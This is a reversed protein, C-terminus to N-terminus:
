NSSSEVELEPSYELFRKFTVGEETHYFVVYSNRIPPLQSLKVKFPKDGAVVTLLWPNPQNLLEKNEGPEVTIAKDDPTLVKLTQSQKGWLGNIVCVRQSTQSPKSAHPIVVVRLANKEKQTPHEKLYDESFLALDGILVLTNPKSELKSLPASVEAGGAANQVTIQESLESFDRLGTYAGRNFTPYLMKGKVKIQVSDVSLGNIWQLSSSSPAPSQARACVLVLLVCFLTRSYIACM